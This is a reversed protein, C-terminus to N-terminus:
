SREGLPPRKQKKPKAAPLQSRQRITTQWALHHDHERRAL